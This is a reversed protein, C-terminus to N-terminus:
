KGSAICSDFFIGMSGAEGTPKAHPSTSTKHCVYTSADRTSKVCTHDQGSRMEKERCEDRGGGADGHGGMTIMYSHQFLTERENGSAQHLHESLSDTRTNKSSINVNLELLLKEVTEKLLGGEEADETSGTQSGTVKHGNARRLDEVLKQYIALEAQLAQVLEHSSALQTLSVELEQKSCMLKEELDHILQNKESLLQDIWVELKTAKEKAKTLSLSLSSPLFSPM